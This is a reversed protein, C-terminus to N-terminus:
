KLNEFTYGRYPKNKSISRVMGSLISNLQVADEFTNMLYEACEKKYDFRKIFEGDKYLNVAVCRGNRLGPRGNKVKSIEPNEKYFNSLKRNGYNYNDSGYRAKYRGNKASYKVNEAHTLWELNTYHNNLRNFDKHNVELKEESKPKKVHATAVLIHVTVGRAGLTVKEYGDHTSHPILKKGDKLRFITGENGVKLDVGRFNINKFKEM